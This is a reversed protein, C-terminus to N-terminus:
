PHAEVYKDFKASLEQLAKWLMGVVINYNVGENAEVQSWAHRELDERAIGLHPETKVPVGKVIELAGDGAKASDVSTSVTIYNHAVVNNWAQGTVGLSGSLNALPVLDNNFIIQSTGPHAQIEDVILAGGHAIDVNGTVQIGANAYILGDAVFVQGSLLHIEGGSVIGANANILGDANLVNGATIHINGASEIGANAYVLGDAVLLQGAVIHIEGGSTIGANADIVGDAVLVQGPLVHIEGGSIIGANAYILGDAVLVQGPVVHIEGGSVIGANANILGDANLVHGATIHVDGNSTVGAATIAGNFTGTGDVTLNGTVGLDGIVQGTVGAQALADWQLNGFQDTVVQRYEMDGWIKARGAQDLVVPNTNKITLGPDQFTDQFSSTNPAYFYV